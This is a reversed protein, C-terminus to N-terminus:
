AAVGFFREIFQDVETPTAHLREWDRESPDIFDEHTAFPAEFVDAMEQALESLSQGDFDSPVETFCTEEFFMKVRAEIVDPTVLTKSM